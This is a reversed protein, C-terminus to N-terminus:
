APLTQLSYEEVPRTQQINVTWKLQELFTALISCASLNGFTSVAQLFSM